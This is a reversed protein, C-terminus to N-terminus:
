YFCTLYNEYTHICVSFSDAGKNLKVAKCQLRIMSGGQEFSTPQHKNM